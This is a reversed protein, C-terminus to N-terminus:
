ENFSIDAYNVELPQPSKFPDFIIKYDLGYGKLQYPIEEGQ